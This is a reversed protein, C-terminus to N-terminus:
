FNRFVSSLDHKSPRNQEEKKAAARLEDERRELFPLVREYNERFKQRDEESWVKREKGNSYRHMSLRREEREEKKEKPSM